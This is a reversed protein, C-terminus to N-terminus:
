GHLTLLYKVVNALDDAALTQGYTQVMVNPRYGLVVYANPQVISTYLYDEAEQGAVRGAATAALGQWTPGVSMQQADLTHCGACGNVLTLQQGHAVDATELAKALDAPAGAPAPAVSGTMASSAGMMTGGMMGCGMRAGGMMGRRMMGRGMMAGGMMGRRMMGSAMSPMTGGAMTGGAIQSKNAAPTPTLPGAIVAPAQSAAQVTGSLTGSVPLATATAAAMGPMNGTMDGVPTQALGTGTVLGVALVLALVLAMAGVSLRRKNSM